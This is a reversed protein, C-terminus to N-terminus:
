MDEMLTFEVTPKSCACVPVLFDSDGIQNKEERAQGRTDRDSATRDAVPKVRKNEVQNVIQLVTDPTQIQTTRSTLINQIFVYTHSAYNSHNACKGSQLQALGIDISWMVTLLFTSLAPFYLHVLTTGNLSSSGSECSLKM